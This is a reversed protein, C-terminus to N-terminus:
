IVLTDTSGKLLPDYRPVLVNKIRKDESKNKYLSLYVEREPVISSLIQLNKEREKSLNSTIDDEDKRKNSEEM